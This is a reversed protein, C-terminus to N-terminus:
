LMVGLNMRSFFEEVLARNDRFVGLACSTQVRFNDGVLGQHHEVCCHKAELIVIVGLPDLVRELFKAIQVTLREQLQLRKAFIGVIKVIEGIGLIGDKPIYAIGAKGRIPVIHHECTSSFNIGKLVIMDSYGDSNKLVTGRYEEEKDKGYGSCSRVLADLVRTPTDILGEREPSDGMWRILAKVAEKNNDEASLKHSLKDGSDM